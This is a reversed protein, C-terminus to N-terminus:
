SRYRIAAEPDGWALFGPIRFAQDVHGYTMPEGQSATVTGGAAALVAHGAAVDWECTPALRPYLDASGEAIRCFKLASGCIMREAIPLRDALAATDVDLHSRSLAVVLRNPASRARIATAAGATTGDPTLHVREAGRGVIGRWLLGLAPAAIVGAIPAGDRVIALNVVYEPRGALFERTGDLPDILLFERGIPPRCQDASEESVVPLGPLLRSLEDLLVAESAEDAATVPSQDAKNRAASAAAPIAQIAASARVLIATLEDLLRGDLYPIVAAHSL